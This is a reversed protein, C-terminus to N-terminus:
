IRASRRLTLVALEPPCAFRVRLGTTGVGRTVFLQSAGRSYAGQIYKRGYNVTVPAIGLLPVRCQGGHTHGSLQLLIDRSSAMVDFYDPEHVLAIVPTDPRIGKLTRAPDPHGHWVFDTGAIALTEGRISILRHQNILFSVGAKEFHRRTIGHGANWGDHNGMVAFVGHKAQFKGFAEMLPPFASRNEDVFDGALAILDLDESCVQRVVKDLLEADDDPRFHFDALLGIRLGELATPLRDSLVDRRTVSLRAPEIWAANAVSGMAGGVMLRLANRRNMVKRVDNPFKVLRFKAPSQSDMM